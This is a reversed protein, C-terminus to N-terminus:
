RQRGEDGREAGDHGRDLIRRLQRVQEGERMELQGIFCEADGRDSAAGRDEVFCALEKALCGRGSFQQAVIVAPKGLGEVGRVGARQEGPAGIAVAIQCDPNLAIEIRQQHGVTRETRLKPRRAPRAVHLSTTNVM